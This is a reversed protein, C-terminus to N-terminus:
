APQISESSAPATTACTAGILLRRLAEDVAQGITETQDATLSEAIAAQITESRNALFRLLSRKRPPFFDVIAEALAKTAAEIVEGSNLARGFDEDGVDAHQGRVLCWLVDVLLVPDEGIRGFVGDDLSALDVECDRRVAKITPADIAIAWERGRGDRFRYSM